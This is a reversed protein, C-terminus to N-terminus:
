VWCIAFLILLSSSPLSMRSSDAAPTDSATPDVVGADPCLTSQLHQEPRLQVLNPKVARKDDGRVRRDPIPTLLQIMGDDRHIITPIGNTDGHSIFRSYRFFDAAFPFILFSGGGLFFVAFAIGNSDVPIQFPSSALLQLGPRQPWAATGTRRRSRRTGRTHPRPRQSVWRHSRKRRPGRIGHGHAEAAAAPACALQSRKNVVVGAATPLLAVPAPVTRATAAHRRGLLAPAPPDSSSSSSGQGPSM